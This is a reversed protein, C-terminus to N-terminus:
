QDPDKIPGIGQGCPIFCFGLSSRFIDKKKYEAPLKRYFEEYSKHTTSGDNNRIEEWDKTQRLPQMHNVASSLKGKPGPTPKTYGAEFFTWAKTISNILQDLTINDINM